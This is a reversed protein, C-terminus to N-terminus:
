IHEIYAAEKTHNNIIHMIKFYRNDFIEYFAYWTTRTKTRRYTAFFLNDGYKEFYPMARKSLGLRHLKPIETRFYQEIESVYEKADDLYGFYEKQYLIDIHEFFLFKVNESFVVQNTKPVINKM